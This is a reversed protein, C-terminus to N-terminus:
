GEKKEVATERMTSEPIKVETGAPLNTAPGTTTTAAQAVAAQVVAAQLEDVRTTQKEARVDKAAILRRLESNEAYLQLVQKELGEIRRGQFEVANKWETLVGNRSEKSAVAASEDKKQAIEAWAKKLAIWAPIGVGLLGALGAFIAAALAEYGEAFLM